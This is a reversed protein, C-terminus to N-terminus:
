PHASSHTKGKKAILLEEMAEIDQIYFKVELEKNKDIKAM